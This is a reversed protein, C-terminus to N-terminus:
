CGPWSTATVSGTTQNEVLLSGATDQTRVPVEVDADEEDAIPDFGIWSDVCGETRAATAM